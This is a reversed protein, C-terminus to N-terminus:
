DFLVVNDRQMFNIILHGRLEEVRDLARTVGDFHVDPLVLQTMVPEHPLLEDFPYRLRVILWLRKQDAHRLLQARFRPRAFNIHKRLISLQAEFYNLSVHQM